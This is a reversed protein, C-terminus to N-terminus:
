ATAQQSDTHNKPYNSWPHNAKPKHGKSRGDLLTLKDVLHNIEKSSSTKVPRKQKAHCKYELLKGKYLLTIEGKNNECVLVKAHRLGYGISRIQIQYIINNYSLELNKSVKREQQITFIQDLADQTFGLSRHADVPNAPEVAFRDNYSGIFSPLFQNADDINSIGQLRLEKVLRDQLTQNAREVRGKAQPSNACIIEIGLESAARAFQTLGHENLNEKTNVRFISHKDNYFAMPRGHQEIYSRTANMYGWTTESPEFRLHLLRSTADDIFVLLCCREARGEFWDHPSGDIQVLEGTCPRRTRSQHTKVQKHRKARWLGTEIMWQRLTEKNIDLHNREALKESALTPGFDAYDSCVLKMIRRKYEDRHRRNSPKGRKNSALSKAGEAKFAKLLRQIQRVSLNLRRAAERQKIQKTAVKKIVSLTSIEKESMTILGQNM